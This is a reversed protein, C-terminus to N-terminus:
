FFIRTELLVKVELGNADVDCAYGDNLLDFSLYPSIVSFFIWAVHYRYM